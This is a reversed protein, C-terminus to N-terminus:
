SSAMNAMSTHMHTAHSCPSACSAFCLCDVMGYEADIPSISKWCPYCTTVPQCRALGAIIADFIICCCVTSTMSSSM